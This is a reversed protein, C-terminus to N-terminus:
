IFEIQYGEIRISVSRHLLNMSVILSQDAGRSALIGEVGNLSGGRIRIRKGADTFPHPSCQVNKSIATRLSEIQEPPIPTGQRESGVFGLVGPTRLVKLREESMQVIRVFTYCSFLPVEVESQRDIWMHIQRHIPLFACVRKEELQASVRKEHRSKTHVAYWNMEQQQLSLPLFQLKSESQTQSSLM